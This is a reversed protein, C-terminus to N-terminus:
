PVVPAVPSWGGTADGTRTRVRVRWSDGARATWRSSTTTTASLWSSWPGNGRRRDVDFTTGAAPPAVAWRIVATLTTKRTRIGHAGRRTTVKRQLAADPIVRIRGFMVDAHDPNYIAHVGAEMVRSADTQPPLTFSFLGSREVVKHTAVRSVNAFRVTDGVSVEVLDQHFAMSGTLPDGTLSITVPGDRDDDQATAGTPGFALCGGLLAMTALSRYTTTKRMGPDREWVPLTGTSVGGPPDGGRGSPTM